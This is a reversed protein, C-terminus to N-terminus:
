QSDDYLYKGLAHGPTRIEFVSGQEHQITFPPIPHSGLSQGDRVHDLGVTGAYRAALAAVVIARDGADLPKLWDWPPTRPLAGWQNKIDPSNLAAVEPREGAGGQAPASSSSSASAGAKRPVSASLRNIFAITSAVLAYAQRAVDAENLGKPALDNLLAADFWPQTVLPFHKNARDPRILDSTKMGISVQNAFGTGMMGDRKIRHAKKEIHIVLGDHKQNAVGTDNDGAAKIAEYMVHMAQQRVALAAADEHACPTTRLEITYNGHDGMDTTFYVLTEEGRSVTGVVGRLKDAIAIRYRGTLEQEVGVTDAAFDPVGAPAPRRRLRVTQDRELDGLLARSPGAPGGAGPRAPPPPPAAPLASASAAAADGAFEGDEIAAALAAKAKPDDEWELLDELERRTHEHTEIPKTGGLMVRRLQMVPAHGAVPRPPAPRRAAATTLHRALARQAVIHPSGNLAVGTAALQAAGAGGAVSAAPTSAALPPAIRTLDAHDAM